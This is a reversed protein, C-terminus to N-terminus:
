PYQERCRAPVRHSHKPAFPDHIVSHVGDTSVDESPPFSTNIILVRVMSSRILDKDDHYFGQSAMYEGIKDQPITHYTLSGKPLSPDVKIVNANLNAPLGEKTGGWTAVTIPADTM